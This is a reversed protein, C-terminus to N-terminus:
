LEEYFIHLGVVKRRLDLHHYRPAKVPDTSRRGDSADGRERHTQRGGTCLDTEKHQKPSFSVRAM